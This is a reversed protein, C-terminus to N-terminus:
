VAPTGPWYVPARRMAQRQSRSRLLLAGAVLAALGVVAIGGVVGALQPRGSGAPAAAQPDNPAFGVPTDGFTLNIMPQTNTDTEHM